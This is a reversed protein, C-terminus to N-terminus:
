TKGKPFFMFRVFRKAMDLHVEMKVGNIKHALNKGILYLSRQRRILM